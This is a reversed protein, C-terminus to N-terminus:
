WGWVYEWPYKSHQASPIRPSPKCIMHFWTKKTRTSIMPIPIWHYWNPLEHDNKLPSLKLPYWNHILYLCIWPSFRWSKSRSDQCTKSRAKDSFLICGMQFSLANVQKTANLKPSLNRSTPAHQTWSTNQFVYNPVDIKKGANKYTRFKLEMPFQITNPKGRKFNPSTTTSSSNSSSVKGSGLQTRWLPNCRYRQNTAESQSYSHHFKRGM